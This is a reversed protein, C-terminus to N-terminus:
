ASGKTVYRDLEERTFLVRGCARKGPLQGRKIAARIALESTTLYTAAAGVDLWPSNPAQAAAIERAMEAVQNALASILDEPLTLTFGSV